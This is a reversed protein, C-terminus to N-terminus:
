RLVSESVTGGFSEVVRRCRTQYPMLLAQVDEPDVHDNPELDAVLIAVQKRERRGHEVSAEVRAGCEACFRQSPRTEVGCAPCATEDSPRRSPASTQTRAVQSSVARLLAEVDDVPPYHLADFPAPLDDIDIGTCHGGGARHRADGMM